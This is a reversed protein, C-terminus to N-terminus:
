QPLSGPTPPPTSVPLPAPTPHGAASAPAVHPAPPSSAVPPTSGQSSAPIQGGPQQVDVVTGASDYIILVRTREEGQALEYPTAVVEWLGLSLIDLGAHAWARGSSAENGKKILYSDVTRGDELRRSTEPAGLKAMIVARNSGPFLISTDQEKHGSAAMGVSCASLTFTLFILLYQMYGGTHSGYRASSYTASCFLLFFSDPM